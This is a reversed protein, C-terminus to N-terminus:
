PEKGSRKIFIHNGVADTKIEDFDKGIMDRLRDSARKEFGSVSMVSALSIINEKLKNQLENM